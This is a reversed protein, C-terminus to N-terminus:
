KKNSKKSKKTKEQEVKVEEQTEETKAGFLKDKLSPLKSKNM